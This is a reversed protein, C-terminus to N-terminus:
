VGGGCGSDGGMCTAAQQNQQNLAHQSNARNQAKQKKYEAYQHETMCSVQPIHSGLPQLKICVMKSSDQQAVQQKGQPQSACAALALGAAAVGAVVFIRINM